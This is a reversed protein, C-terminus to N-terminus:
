GACFLKNTTYKQYIDAISEKQQIVSDGLKFLEFVTIATGNVATDTAIEELHDDPNVFDMSIFAFAHNPIRESLLEAGHLDIYEKMKRVDGAPFTYRAYAKADIILGYSRPYPTTKYKATETRFVGCISSKGITSCISQSNLGNSKQRISEDGKMSTCISM